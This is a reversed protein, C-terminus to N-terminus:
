VGLVKLLKGFIPNSNLSQKVRQIESELIVTGQIGNDM